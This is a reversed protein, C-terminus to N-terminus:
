ILRVDKLHKWCAGSSMEDLRWQSYAVNYAWQERGEPYDPTDLKSLDLPGLVSAVGYKTLTPIGELLADAAVNSHHSIVCYASALAAALSGKRDFRAGHIPRAEPWSPKPRYVVERTTIKRLAAVMDREFQESPLKWAWAAKGSMGALLIHGGSSRRWDKIPLRLQNFRDPPLKTKMFYHTPHRDNVSVKYYSDDRRWYGMDLFVYPIGKAVCHAIIKQCNEVFGWLVCANYGDMNFDRDTRFVTQDGCREIGKAMARCTPGASGNRDLINVSVKM